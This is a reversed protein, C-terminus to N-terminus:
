LLMGPIVGLSLGLSLTIAFHRVSVVALRLLILLGGRKVLVRLFNFVIVGWWLRSKAISTAATGHQLFIPNSSDHLM